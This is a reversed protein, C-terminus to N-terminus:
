DGCKQPLNQLFSALKDMATEIEQTSYCYSFRIFGDTGFCSGPVGAVHGQKIMRICFQESHMGYKKISPFVYFAGDPEPFSLGMARLRGCMLARRVRYTDLMEKPDYSLAAICAKQSFANVCSVAAAHMLSLASIVEAAGMLYGVRWGTMAYPKSFSQAILIRDRLDTYQTFSHPQTYLLRNYVEDCVIFVPYAALADHIGALCADSLVVGSPHNPSNLVVAKTRPSLLARLREPDIQFDTCTTDLFVPIAGFFLVISEYLSFAPTPIIVEDGPNLIGGLAIFLAESAGNTIIIEHPDYSLGNQQAEFACVAERLEGDGTNPPYHTAGHELAQICAARVPAPTDFDPEGITLMSCDPTARALATFRRIGSPRLASLNHNMSPLM